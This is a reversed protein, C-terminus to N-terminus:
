FALSHTDNSLAYCSGVRERPTLGTCEGNVEETGPDLLLLNQVPRYCRRDNGLDLCTALTTEDDRGKKYPAQVSAFPLACIELLTPDQSRDITLSRRITRYVSLGLKAQLAQLAGISREIFPPPTRPGVWECDTGVVRLIRLHKLLCNKDRHYNKHNRRARQLTTPLCLRRNCSRLNLALEAREFARTVM